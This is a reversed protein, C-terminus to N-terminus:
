LRECGHTYGAAAAFFVVTALIFVIDTMVLEEPAAISRM